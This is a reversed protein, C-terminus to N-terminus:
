PAAAIAIARGSALSQQAALATALTARVESPQVLLQEEGQLVAIWHRMQHNFADAVAGNAPAVADSVFRSEDESAVSLTGEEGVVVIRELHDGRKRLAYSWELVALGGCAFRLTLHFSDPTPMAPSFTPMGRAFVRVPASGMLWAALDITHVGNHVLHGGCRAPDLQWAHWGHPWVHGAYRTAHIVRVRGIEGDAVAASLALHKPQFRLTQGVMLPVGARATAAFMDDVDTLALAVPKEVHIAKGAEAAAIALAAHSDPQTCIDVADIAPDALMVDLDTTWRAGDVTAALAQAREPHRDVVWGLRAEPIQGLAAIHDRAIAGAGVLGVVVTM